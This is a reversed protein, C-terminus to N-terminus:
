VLQYKKKCNIKEVQTLTENLHGQLLVFSSHHIGTEM